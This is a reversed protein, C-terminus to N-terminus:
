GTGGPCFGKEWRLAESNDQVSIPKVGQASDELRRTNNTQKM